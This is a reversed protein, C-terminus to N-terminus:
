FAKKFEEYELPGSKVARNDKWQTFWVQAAEKLNYSVMDVKERPTMNMSYVIKYVEDKFDQPDEGLKSGLFNLPNIRWFDRLTSTMSSEIVSIKPGM